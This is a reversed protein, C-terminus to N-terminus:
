DLWAIGSPARWGYDANLHWRDVAAFAMDMLHLRTELNYPYTSLYGDLFPTIQRPRYLYLPAESIQRGELDYGYATFEQGSRMVAFVRDPGSVLMFMDDTFGGVAGIEVLEDGDLRYLRDHQEHAFVLQEDLQAFGLAQTPGQGDYPMIWAGVYQGDSLRWRHIRSGSDNDALVEGRAADYFLSRPVANDAYLPNGGPDQTQFDLGTAAGTMDLRRLTTPAGGEPAILAIFGGGDVDRPLPLLLEIGRGQGPQPGHTLFQGDGGFIYLRGDYADSIMVDGAVTIQFSADATCGLADRARLTVTVPGTWWPAPLAGAETHGPAWTLEQAAEAVSVLGGPDGAATFTIPAAGGEVEFGATIWEGRIIPAGGLPATWSLTMAGPEPCGEGSEGGLEGPGLGGQGGSQGGGGGQGGVGGDNSGHVDGGQGGPGGVDGGQGGPEGPEAEDVSQCAGLLAGCLLGCLLGSSLHPKKASSRM